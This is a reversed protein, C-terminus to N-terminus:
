KRNFTTRLLAIANLARTASFPNSWYLGGSPPSGLVVRTMTFDEMNGHCEGAPIVSPHPYTRGFQLTASTNQRTMKTVTGAKFNLGLAADLTNLYESIPVFWDGVFSWPVLEWAVLAPNLVGKQALTQFAGIDLTYDLRVKCIFETKTTSYGAFGISKVRSLINRDEYSVKSEKTVSIRPERIFGKEFDQIVGYIDGILPMWGYQLELWRRSMENDFGRRNSKLKFTDKFNRRSIGLEKAANTMQGRRVHRLARYLTKATSAVTTATRSAEALMIGYNVTSDKLDGLARNIARQELFEPFSRFAHDLNPPRAYIYPSYELADGSGYVWWETIPINAQRYDFWGSWMTQNFGSAAYPLPPRWGTEDLNSQAIDSRDTRKLIFQGDYNTTVVQPNAYKNVSTMSNHLIERTIETRM